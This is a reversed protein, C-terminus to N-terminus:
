RKVKKRAKVAQSKGGNSFKSPLVCLEDLSMEMAEAIRLVIDFSPIHLGSIIQALYVESIEAANAVERKRGYGKLSTALNKRFNVLKSMRMGEIYLSEIFDSLDFHPM